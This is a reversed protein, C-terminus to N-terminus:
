SAAVSILAITRKCRNRNRNRHIHLNAEVALTARTSRETAEAAAHDTTRKDSWSQPLSTPLTRDILDTAEIAEVAILEIATAGAGTAAVARRKQRKWLSKSRDNAEVAGEISRRKRNHQYVRGIVANVM